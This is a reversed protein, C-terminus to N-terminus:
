SKSPQHGVNADEDTLAIRELTDQNQLGLESVAEIRKDPNSNQWKPKFADLLSM